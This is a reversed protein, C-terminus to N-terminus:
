DDQNAAIKTLPSPYYDTIGNKPSCGGAIEM